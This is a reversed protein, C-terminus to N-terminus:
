CIDAPLPNGCWTGLVGESETERERERDRERERQRERLKERESRRPCFDREWSGERPCFSQSGTKCIQQLCSEVMLSLMKELAIENKKRRFFVFLCFVRMKLRPKLIEYTLWGAPWAKNVALDNKREVSRSYKMCNGFIKSIKRIPFGVKFRKRLFGAYTPVSNWVYNNSKYNEEFVWM